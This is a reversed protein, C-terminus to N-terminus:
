SDTQIDVYFNYLFYCGGGFLLVVAFILTWKIMQRNMIKRRVSIIPLLEVDHLLIRTLIGLSVIIFLSAIDVEYSVALMAGFVSGWFVLNGPSVAVL